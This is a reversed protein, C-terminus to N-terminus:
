TGYPAIPYVAFPFFCWDDAGNYTALGMANPTYNVVNVACSGQQALSSSPALAALVALTGWRLAKLSPQQPPRTSPCTRTSRPTKM